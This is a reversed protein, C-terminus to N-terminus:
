KTDRVIDYIHGSVKLFDMHMCHLLDFINSTQIHDNVKM